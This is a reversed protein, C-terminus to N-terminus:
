KNNNNNTRSNQTTISQSDKWKFTIIRDSVRNYKEGKKLRSKNRINKRQDRDINLRNRQTRSSISFVFANTIRINGVPRREHKNNTTMIHLLVITEEMTAVYVRISRDNSNDILMFCYATTM